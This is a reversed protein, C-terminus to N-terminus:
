QTNEEFMELEFSDFIGEGKLKKMARRHAREKKLYLEADARAEDTVPIRLVDKLRICPMDEAFYYEEHVACLGLGYYTIVTAGKCHTISCVGDVPKSKRSDKRWNPHM